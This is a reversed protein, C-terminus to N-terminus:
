KNNDNAYKIGMITGVISFCNTILISFLNSWTSEIIRNEKGSFIVVSYLLTTCLGVGVIIYLAARVISGILEFQTKKQLIDLDNQAVEKSKEAKLLADKLEDNLQKNEEQQEILEKNQSQIQKTIQLRKIRTNKDAEICKQIYSEFEADNSSDILRLINGELCIQRSQYTEILQKKTKEDFQIM